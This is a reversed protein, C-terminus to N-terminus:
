QQQPQQQQMCAPTGLAAMNRSAASGRLRGRSHERSAIVLAKVATGAAAAAAAHLSPHGVSGGESVSCEGEALKLVLLWLRFRWPKGFEFGLLSVAAAAAAAAATAAM